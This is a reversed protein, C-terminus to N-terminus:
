DDPVSADTPDGVGEPRSSYRASLQWRGGSRVWTDTLFYRTVRRVGNVTADGTYLSSVVATDGYERVLLEHIRFEHLERTSIANKLWAARDVEVLGGAVAVTLSYDPRLMSDLVESDHAQLAQALRTELDHFRKVSDDASAGSASISLLLPLVILITRM